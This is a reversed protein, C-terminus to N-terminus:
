FQCRLLVRPRVFVLSTHDSFLYSHVRLQPVVALRKTLSIAADAGGTVALWRYNSGSNAVEHHEPLNEQLDLYDVFGSNRWSRTASTCGALLAVSVRSGSRLHGAILGSISPARNEERISDVEIRHPLRVRGSHQSAHWPPLDFELRLSVQRTLVVGVGGSVGMATM